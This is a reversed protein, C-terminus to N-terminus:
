EVSFMVKEHVPRGLNLERAQKKLRCIWM